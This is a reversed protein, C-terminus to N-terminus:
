LWDKDIFDITFKLNHAIWSAGTACNPKVKKIKLYMCTEPYIMFCSENGLIKTQNKM